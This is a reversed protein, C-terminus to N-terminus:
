VTSFLLERHPGERLEEVLKCTNVQDVSSYRDRRICSQINLRIDERTPYFTRCSRPPNQKGAFLVHEVYFQLCKEVQSVSTTGQLMLLNIKASVEPKMPQGYGLAVGFKHASHADM